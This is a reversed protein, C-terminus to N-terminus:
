LGSFWVIKKKAFDIMMSHLSMIIPPMDTSFTKIEDKQVLSMSM